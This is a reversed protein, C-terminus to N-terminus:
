SAREYAHVDANESAQRGSRPSLTSPKQPFTISMVAIKATTQAVAVVNEKAVGRRVFAIPTTNPKSILVAM